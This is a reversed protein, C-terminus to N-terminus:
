GALIAGAIAKALEFPVQGDENPLSVSVHFLQAGARVSLQRQAPYWSAEDGVGDVTLLEPPVGNTTMAEALGRLSQDYAAEAAASNALAQKPIAVGVKGSYRRSEGPTKWQYECLEKMFRGVGIEVSADSPIKAAEILKSESLLACPDPGESTAAEALEGVEVQGAKAEGAKSAGAARAEASAGAERARGDSKGAEASGDCAILCLALSTFMSVSGTRM